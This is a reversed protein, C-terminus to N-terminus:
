GGRQLAPPSRANGAGVCLMPRALRASLNVGPPSFCQLPTCALLCVGAVSAMLGVCRRMLRTPLPPIAAEVEDVAAGESAATAAAVQQLRHAQLVDAVEESRIVNDAPVADRVLDDIVESFLEVYRRTNCVIEDVFEKEGKHQLHPPPLPPPHTPPPTARRRLYPHRFNTAPDRVQCGCGCSHACAHARVDVIDDLEITLLKITREAAHEQSSLVPACAPSPHLPHVRCSSGELWTEM